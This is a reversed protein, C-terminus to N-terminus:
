TWTASKMSFSLEKTPMEFFGAKVADAGSFAGKEYGFLESEVLNEPIAACNVDVLPQNCRLSHSHISRAIMEKGTGTEGVILVAAPHRAVKEALKMVRQLSTSRIILEAQDRGSPSSAPLDEDATVNTSPLGKPPYLM